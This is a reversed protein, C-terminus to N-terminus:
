RRGGVLRRTVLGALVTVMLAVRWVAVVEPYSLPCSERQFLLTKPVHDISSPMVLWVATGGILAAVLAWHARTVAGGIRRVSLAGASRLLPRLTPCSGQRRAVPDTM